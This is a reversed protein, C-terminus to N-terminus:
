GGDLAEALVRVVDDRGTPSDRTTRNIEVHAFFAGHEAAAGGQRNHRGELEGCDRTWARCVRLSRDLGDAIEEIRPTRATAGPSLVLDASDLSADDFGHLQVQPLHDRSHREALAHFMSDARHAVDGAGAAVRRHTGAVALVAGPVRRFLELGIDATRLDNAPHPVQVALRASHGLDVLYLGWGQEADPETAAIAYPRGTREDVGRAVALGLSRLEDDAASPTAGLRTLSETFAQRQTDNPPRYPADEHLASAYDRM